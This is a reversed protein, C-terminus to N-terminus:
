FYLRSLFEALSTSWMLAPWVLKWTWHSYVNLMHMLAANHQLLTQNKYTEGEPGFGTYVMYPVWPWVHHNNANQESWVFTRYDTFESYDHQLKQQNSSASKGRATRRLTSDEEVEDVMRTERRGASVDSRHEGPRLLSSPWCYPRTWFLLTLM